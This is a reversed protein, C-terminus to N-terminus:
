FGCRLYKQLQRRHRQRIARFYWAKYSFWWGYRPHPDRILDIQENATVLENVHSELSDPFAGGLAKMLTYIQGKHITRHMTLDHVEFRAVPIRSYAIAIEPMHLYLWATDGYHFHECPFPFKQLISTRFLCSACSGVLGSAGSLIQLVAAKERPIVHHDYLSMFKEFVFLPWHQTMARIEKKWAQIIPPSTVLDARTKRLVNLLIDLGDHREMFDGVTSIYLFEGTAHAIGANWAEYLGRPVELIKGGMKSAAAKAMRCSGDPSDTIVWILEHVRGSLTTLFDLHAPLLDACQYVPILVSIQSLSSSM